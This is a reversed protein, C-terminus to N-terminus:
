LSLDVEDWKKHRYLVWELAKRREKVIALLIDSTSENEKKANNLWWHLRYYLDLMAYIEVPSRLQMSNIYKYGDENCRLDPSLGALESGVQQNFPLSEILNTAWAIAWLAELSFYLERHADETLENTSSLITLEKPSLEASLCNNEIWNIIHSKPAKMHLQYMANLILARNIVKQQSRPEPLEITPLWDLITGGFDLIIKESQNKVEQPNIIENIHPM